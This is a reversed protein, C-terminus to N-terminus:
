IFSIIVSVFQVNVGVIIKADTRQNRLKTTGHIWFSYIPLHITLRCPLVNTCFGNLEISCSYQPFLLHQDRTLNAENVRRHFWKIKRNQNLYHGVFRLLVVIWILPFFVKFINPTLFLRNQFLWDYTQNFNTSRKSTFLQQNYSSQINFKNKNNQQQRKKKNCTWVLM